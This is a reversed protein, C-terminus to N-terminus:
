VFCKHPTNALWHSLRHHFIRHADCRLAFSPTTHNRFMVNCTPFINHSVSQVAFIHTEERCIMPIFHPSFSKAIQSHRITRNKAVVPMGQPSSRWCCVQTHIVTHIRLLRCFSIELLYQLCYMLTHIITHIKSFRQFSIFLLRQLCYMLPCPM